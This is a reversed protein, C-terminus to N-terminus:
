KQTPVSQTLRKAILEGCTAPEYKPPNDESTCSPLVGLKKDFNFGPIFPAFVWESQSNLVQLGRHEDQWLLTLIQLDTHAGLGVEELDEIPVDGHGKYFNMAMDAGPCTTVADFHDEPLDLALAIIRILRRALSLCARWYELVDNQFHPVGLDQWVFGDKPLHKTVEEPIDELRGQYLPDFAPEYHFNFTEKSDRSSSPNAQRAGAGWYGYSSIEVRPAVRSKAEIPLHFFETAKQRAKQITEEPIGHNQIYFFGANEAAQLINRAVAKRSDLNGNIGTLDIVPIEEATCDRPSKKSVLRHTFGDFSRLLLKAMGDPPASSSTVQPTSM